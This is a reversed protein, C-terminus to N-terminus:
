LRPELISDMGMSVLIWKNGIKEFTFSAYYGTLTSKIDLYYLFITKSNPKNKDNFSEKRENFIKYRHEWFNQKICLLSRNDFSYKLLEPAELSDYYESNKYIAVASDPNDLLKYAFQRHQEFSTCSSFVLAITFLM